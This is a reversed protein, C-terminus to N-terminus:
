VWENYIWLIYNMFENFIEETDEESELNMEWNDYSMKAINKFDEMWRSIIENSYITNDIKFSQNWM